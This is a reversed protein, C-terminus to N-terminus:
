CVDEYHKKQFMAEKYITKGSKVTAKKPDNYSNMRYMQPM